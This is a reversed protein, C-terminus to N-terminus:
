FDLLVSKYLVLPIHWIGARNRAPSHPLLGGWRGGGRIRALECMAYVLFNVCVAYVLWTVCMAYALWARESTGKLYDKPQGVDM